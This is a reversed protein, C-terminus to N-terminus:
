TAYVLLARSVGKPVRRLVVAVPLAIVVGLVATAMSLEISLLFANRQFPSALIAAYNAISWGSDSHLRDLGVVVLPLIEFLLLMVLLPAAALIALRTGRAGASAALRRAM